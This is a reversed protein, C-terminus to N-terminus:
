LARAIEVEFCQNAFLTLFPLTQKKLPPESGFINTSLGSPWMMFKINILSFIAFSSNALFGVYFENQDYLEQKVLGFEQFFDLCFNKEKSNM